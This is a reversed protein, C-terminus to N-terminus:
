VPLGAKRYGELWHDKDEQRKCMKLHAAIAVTIDHRAPQGARYVALAAMAEDMNGLQAHCAALVDYMYFPANQWQKFTDIATHYDRRMYHCEIHPELNQQAAQPDLRLAKEYWALAADPDGSYNLYSGRAYIAFYENPNLSLAKDVHSKARDFDGCALFSIAAVAHVYADQDDAQVAKDAYFRAKEIPEDLSETLVFISQAYIHALWAYARAFGPDLSIATELEEIASAIDDPKRDWLWRAHLFHEYASLSEVPKRNARELAAHHLRVPM